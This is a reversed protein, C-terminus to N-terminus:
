SHIGIGQAQHIQEVAQIQGALVLEVGGHVLFAGVQHLPDTGTAVLDQAVALGVGCLSSIAALVMPNANSEAMLQAQEPNLGPIAGIITGLVLGAFMMALNHLTFIQDFGTALDFLGDDDLQTDVRDAAIWFELRSFPRAIRRDTDMQLAPTIGPRRAPDHGAM